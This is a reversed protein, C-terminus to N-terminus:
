VAPVLTSLLVEKEKGRLKFSGLPEAVYDKKLSLSAL